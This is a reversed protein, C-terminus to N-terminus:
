RAAACSSCCRGRRTSRSTTAASLARAPTHAAALRAWVVADVAGTRALGEVKQFAYVAEVDDDGFYGDAQVAYHLEQLRQELERCARAARASRSSPSRRDRGDRRTCPRLGAARPGHAFPSTRSTRARAHRRRPVVVRAPARRTCRRSARPRSRRRDPQRGHARRAEARRPDQVPASRVGLADAVWPATGLVRVRLKGHVFRRGHLTVPVRPTVAARLTVWQAYRADARRRSSHRLDGDGVAGHEAGLDTTLTPTGPGAATSTSCRSGSRGSARRRLEM